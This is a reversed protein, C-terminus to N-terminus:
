DFRINLGCSFSFFSYVSPSLVYTNVMNNKMYKIFSNNRFLEM